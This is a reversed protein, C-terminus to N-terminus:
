AKPSHFFWFFTYGRTEYISKQTVLCPFYDALTVFSSIQSLSAFKLIKHNNFNWETLKKRVTKWSSPFHVVEPFTTM